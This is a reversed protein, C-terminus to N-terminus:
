QQVARRLGRPESLTFVVSLSLFLASSRMHVGLFRIATSIGLALCDHFHLYCCCDNALQKMFLAPSVEPRQTHAIRSYRSTYLTPPRPALRRTSDGAVPPSPKPQKGAEEPPHGTAGMVCRSCRRM